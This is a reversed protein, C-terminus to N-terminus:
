SNIISRLAGVWPLNRDDQFLQADFIFGFEERDRRFYLTFFVRSLIGIAPLSGKRRGLELSHGDSIM